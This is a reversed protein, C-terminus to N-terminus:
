PALCVDSVTLIAFQDIPLDADAPRNKLPTAGSAIFFRHGDELLRWIVSTTWYPRRGMESQVGQHLGPRGVAQEVAGLTTPEAPASNLTALYRAVTEATLVAGASRAVALCLPCACGGGDIM